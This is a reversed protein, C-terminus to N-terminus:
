VFGFPFVNWKHCVYRHACHLYSPVKIELSVNEDGVGFTIIM